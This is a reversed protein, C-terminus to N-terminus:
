ESDDETDLDALWFGYESEKGWKKAMKMRFPEQLLLFRSMERYWLTDDITGGDSACATLTVDSKRNYNLWKTHMVTAGENFNLAKIADSTEARSCGSVFMQMELEEETAVFDDGLLELIAADDEDDQEQGTFLDASDAWNECGNETLQAMVEPDKCWKAMLQANHKAMTKKEAKYRNNGAKDSSTVKKGTSNARETEEAAACAGLYGHAMIPLLGLKPEKEKEDTEKQRRLFQTVDLYFLEETTWEYDEEKQEPTFQQELEKSAWIEETLKQYNRWVVKFEQRAQERLPVPAIPVAAPATTAPQLRRFKFTIGKASNTRGLQPVAAGGGQVPPTAIPPAPPAKRNEYNATREFYVEYLTALVEVYAAMLNPIDNPNDVIFHLHNLLPHLMLAAIESNTPEVDLHRITADRARGLMIQGLHTLDDFRVERWPLDKAVQNKVNRWDLVPLLEDGEAILRFRRVMEFRWIIVFCVTLLTSNQVKMSNAHTITGVGHVEAIYDNEAETLQPPLGGKFNVDDRKFGELGAVKYVHLATFTSLLRVYGLCIITLASVRTQSKDISPRPNGSKNQMAAKDMIKAPKPQLAFKSVSRAKNIVDLSAQFPAVEVKNDTSVLQGTARRLVKDEDHMLCAPKEDVILEAIKGDARDTRATLVLEQLGKGARERLLADANDVLSEATGDAVPHQAILPRERTWQECLYSLVSSELKIREITVGDSSWEAPPNGRTYELLCKMRHTLAISFATLSADLSTELMKRTPM